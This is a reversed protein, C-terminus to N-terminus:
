SFTALDVKSLDVISSEIPIGEAQLQHIQGNVDAVRGDSYIVRNTFESNRFDDNVAAQLMSRIAQGATAKHFVFTSLVGYSTVKGAPLQNKLVELLGTWQM